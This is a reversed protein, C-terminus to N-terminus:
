NTFTINWIFEFVVKQSMNKYLINGKQHSSIVKSTQVCMKDKSVNQVYKCVCVCMCVYVCVYMCICM